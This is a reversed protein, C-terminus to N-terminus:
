GGSGKWTGGRTTWCSMRATSCKTASKVRLSKTGTSRRTSPFTVPLDSLRSGDPGGEGPHALAGTRCNHFELASEIRFTKECTGCRYRYEGDVENRSHKYSVHQKLSEKRSFLKACEECKFLKDGHSRVHRSLNSSNQFVKSCTSCQYVRRHEGLQRVLKRRVGHRGSLILSRKLTVSGSQHHPFKPVSSADSTTTALKGLVLEMIREDPTATVPEDPPVETIIEAVQEAPEKGEIIVLPQEPKSVKPKRGRRPKKKQEKSTGVGKPVAPPEGRPGDPEKEPAGQHQSAAPLGKTQELHGLLHENQLQLELFTASCVKCVWPSPDSEVPTSSEPTGAAHAGSCAQRLMPKDMKKAYFAAYWVRLETGPPIDRSTTFYVDDGHQYATLNQHELQVAPRVLMMWNCDDENSTDFCVPHGDKQFVKLPFASEKEWKAVRRSEFPGFQTRKVLQTVAFVGEAGDELQRIELNSPLSSRARSLVFSDKVMVVPGLEPCESDHYQSCDECWIFMIEESGDEAMESVQRQFTCLPIPDPSRTAIREPFQAAGSAPPRHRPM